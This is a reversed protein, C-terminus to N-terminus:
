LDVGFSTPNSLSRGGSRQSVRPLGSFSGAKGGPRARRRGVRRALFSLTPSEAGPYNATLGFVAIVPKELANGIAIALNLAANDRGRQSRQMWYVVCDGEPSPFGDRLVRVRPHPQWLRGLPDSM